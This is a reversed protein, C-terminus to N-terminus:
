VLSQHSRQKTLRITKTITTPTTITKYSITITIYSITICNAYAANAMSRGWYGLSQHSRQKTLRITITITTPTTKITITTPTTTITITIYSMTIRTAYAANALSRGRYGLSQHSQQWVGFSIENGGRQMSSRAVRM